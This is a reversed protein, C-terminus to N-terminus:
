PAVSLVFSKTPKNTPVFLFRGSPRKNAQHRASLTPNERRHAQLRVAEFGL